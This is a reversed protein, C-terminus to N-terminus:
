GDPKARDRSMFGCTAHIDLWGDNNLDVLAPGWGWGVAAVDRHPVPEFSAQGQNIHLQSGAVMRRLKAMTAPDYYEQSLNDMVRNGAKSYMNSVYIDVKGDNDVDGTALGMSGFDDSHEAIQQEEFTGDRENVLLIGAGFEHILYLDPWGDDNADFWNASFTSRKGGEAGALATVDEFVGNGRNRLLQNGQEHGSQGDIWSGRNYGKVDLRTIYLDILGDRDFDAVSAGSVRALDVDAILQNLNSAGSADQFRKGSDNRFVIVGRFPERTKSLVAAARGLFILDEWGDGDLDAFAAHDALAINPLQMAYSADEFRGGPLGRYLFTSRVSQPDTVLVDTLGDRNYDALYIGGNTTTLDAEACNWSDVLTNLILGREKAVERMLFNEARSVDFKTLECSLWWAGDSFPTQLPSRTSFNFTAFIEQPGGDAQVGRLELQFRGAWDGKLDGRVRPTFELTAFRIKPSTDFTGRLDLLWGVFEARDLEQKPNTEVRDRRIFLFENQLRAAASEQVLMAHFDETFASALDDARSEGLAAVIPRWGEAGLRNCYHEVDWLYQREIEPLFLAAEVEEPATSEEGFPVTARPAYFVYAAACLAVAAIAVFVKVIRARVM